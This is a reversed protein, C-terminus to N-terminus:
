RSPVIEKGDAGLFRLDHVCFDYDLSTGQLTGVGFQLGFLRTPDLALQPDGWTPQAATGLPATMTRTTTILAQAGAENKLYFPAATLCSALDDKCELKAVQTIAPGVGTVPPSEITFQVQTIGLQEANFPSLIGTKDANAEAIPFGLIAGWNTYTPGADALTGTMCVTGPVPNTVRATSVGDTIPAARLVFAVSDVPLVCEEVPPGKCIPTEKGGGDDPRNSACAAIHGLTGLLAIIFPRRM